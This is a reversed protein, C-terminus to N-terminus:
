FWTLIIMCFFLAKICPTGFIHLSAFITVVNHVGQINHNWLIIREKSPSVTKAPTDVGAGDIRSMSVTRGPSRHRSGPTMAGGAQQRDARSMVITPVLDTRRRHATLSPSLVGDEGSLTIMICM